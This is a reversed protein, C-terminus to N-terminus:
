NYGFEDLIHYIRVFTVGPSRWKQVAESSTEDMNGKQVIHNNTVIIVSSEFKVVWDFTIHCYSLPLM